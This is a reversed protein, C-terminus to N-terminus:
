RNAASFVFGFRVLDKTMRFSSLNLHYDNLMDPLLALCNFLRIVAIIWMWSSNNKSNISHFNFCVIFSTKILKMIIIARDAHGRRMNITWLDISEERFAELSIYVNCPLPYVIRNDDEMFLKCWCSCRRIPYVSCNFKLSSRYESSNFRANDAWLSM